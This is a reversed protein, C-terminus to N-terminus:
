YGTNFMFLAKTVIVFMMCTCFYVYFDASHTVSEM